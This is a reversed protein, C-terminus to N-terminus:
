TDLIATMGDTVAPEMRHTQQEDWGSLRTRRSHHFVEHRIPDPQVYPGPKDALRRHSSSTVGWEPVDLEGPMM